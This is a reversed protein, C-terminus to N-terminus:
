RVRCFTRVPNQFFKIHIYWDHGMNNEVHVPKSYDFSPIQVNWHSLLIRTRTQQLLLRVTPPPLYGALDNLTTVTTALQLTRRRLHSEYSSPPLMLKWPRRNPVYLSRHTFRNERRWRIGPNIIWPGIGGIGQVDVYHWIEHLIPFFKAKTNQSFSGDIWASLANAVYSVVADVAASRACPWNWSKPELM